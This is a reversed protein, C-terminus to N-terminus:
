RGTEAVLPIHTAPLAEVTKVLHPRVMLRSERVSIFPDKNEPSAVRSFRAKQPTQGGEGLRPM